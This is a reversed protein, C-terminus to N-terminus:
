LKGIHVDRFTAAYTAWAITFYVRLFFSLFVDNQLSFVVHMHAHAHGQWERVDVEGSVHFAYFSDLCLSAALSLHGNVDALPLDHFNFNIV